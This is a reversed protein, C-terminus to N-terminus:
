GSYSYVNRIELVPQSFVIANSIMKSHGLRVRAVFANHFCRSVTMREATNLRTLQFPIPGVWQSNALAYKPVSRKKLSLRCEECVHVGSVGEDAYVGDACLVPGDLPQIPDSTSFREMRTVDVSDNILVALMPDLLDVMQM